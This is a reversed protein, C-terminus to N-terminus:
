VNIKLCVTHEIKQRLNEVLRKSVRASALFHILEGFESNQKLHLRIYSDWGWNKSTVQAIQGFPIFTTSFYNSVLFGDSVLEIRKLRFARWFSPILFVLGISLTVGRALLSVEDAFLEGRLVGVLVFIMLLLYVFPGVFKRWVTESSSIIGNDLKHKEMDKALAIFGRWFPCAISFSVVVIIPVALFHNM